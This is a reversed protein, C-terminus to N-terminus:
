NMNFMYSAALNVNDISNNNSNLNGQTNENIKTDPDPNLSSQKNIPSSNKNNNNFM